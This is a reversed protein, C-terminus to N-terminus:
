RCIPVSLRLPRSKPVIPMHKYGPTITSTTESASINSNSLIHISNMRSQTDINIVWQPHAIIIPTLTNPNNSTVWTMINSALTGNEGEGGTVTAKAEIVTWDEAGILIVQAMLIEIGTTETMILPTTEMGSDENGELRIIKVSEEIKIILGTKRTEEKETAAHVEKGDM